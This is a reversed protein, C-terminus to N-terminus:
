GEETQVKTQMRTAEALVRRLFPRKAPHSTGLPQNDDYAPVSHWASELLAVALDGNWTDISITASSLFFEACALDCPAIAHLPRGQEFAAQIAQAKAGLDDAFILM